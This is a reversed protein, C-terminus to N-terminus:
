NICFSFHHNTVHEKNEDFNLKHDCFGFRDRFMITGLTAFIGRFKKFFNM